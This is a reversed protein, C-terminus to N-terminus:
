TANAPITQRLFWIVMFLPYSDPCEYECTGCGGCAAIWALAEARCEEPGGTLWAPDFSPCHEQLQLRCPDCSTLHEILAELTALSMDLNSIAQKWTRMRWTSLNKLIRERRQAVDSPLEPVLNLDRMLDQDLDKDSITLILHKSTELGLIGIHVDFNKPVLQDCFQCSGRFRSALIGGQAAFHLVEDTSHQPDEGTEKKWDTDDVAFASLCDTSILLAQSLDLDNRHALEKLSLLECPRMALALGRGHLQQLATIAKGAANHPMFPAFPDARNLHSPDEILTPEPFRKEDDWVPILLAKLDAYSWLHHLLQRAAHLPGQKGVPLLRQANM